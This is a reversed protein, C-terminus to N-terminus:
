IRVSGSRVISNIVISLFQSSGWNNMCSYLPLVYDEGFEEECGFLFHEFMLAYVKKSKGDLKGWSFTKVTRGPLIQAKVFATSLVYTRDYTAEYRKLMATNLVISERKLYAKNRAFIAMRSDKATPKSKDSIFPLVSDIHRVGHMNQNKLIGEVITNDKFINQLRHVMKEIDKTEEQLDIYIVIHNSYHKSKFFLQLIYIVM